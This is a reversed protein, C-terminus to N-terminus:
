RRGRAGWRLFALLAVALTAALVGFMTRYAIEPPHGDVAPFAGLIWGPVIQMVSVGLFNAVNM